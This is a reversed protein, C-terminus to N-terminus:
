EAQASVPWGAGFVHTKKEGPPARLHCVRFPARVNEDQLASLQLWLGVAGAPQWQLWPESVRGLTEM